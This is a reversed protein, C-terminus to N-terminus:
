SLSAKRKKTYPLSHKSYALLRLRMRRSRRRMLFERRIEPLSFIIFLKQINNNFLFSNM